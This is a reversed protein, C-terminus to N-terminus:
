LAVEGAELKDVITDLCKGFRQCQTLDKGWSVSRIDNGKVAIVIVGDAQSERCIIKATNLNIHSMGRPQNVGETISM